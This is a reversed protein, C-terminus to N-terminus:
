ARHHVHRVRHHHRADHSHAVSHARRVATARRLHEAPAEGVRNVGLYHRDCITKGRWTMSVCNFGREMGQRAIDVHGTARWTSRWTTSVCRQGDFITDFPM